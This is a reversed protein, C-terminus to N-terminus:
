SKSANSVWEISSAQIDVVPGTCGPEHVETRNRAAYTSSKEPTDFSSDRGTIRLVVLSPLYFAGVNM